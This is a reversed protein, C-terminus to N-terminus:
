EGAVTDTLHAHLIEVWKKRLHHESIANEGVDNSQKPTHNLNAILWANRNPLFVKQWVLNGTKLYLQLTNGNREVNTM